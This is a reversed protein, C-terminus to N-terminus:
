SLNCLILSRHGHGLPSSNGRVFGPVYHGLYILRSFVTPYIPAVKRKLFQSLTLSVALEMELCCSAGHTSVMLLAWGGFSFFNLSLFNDNFNFWLLCTWPVNFPNKGKIFGITSSHATIVLRPWLVSSSHHYRLFDYWRTVLRSFLMFLPQTWCLFWNSGRRRTLPGTKNHHLFSTIYM